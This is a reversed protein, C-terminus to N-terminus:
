RLLIRRTRPVRGKSRASSLCHDLIHTCSCHGGAEKGTSVRSSSLSSFPLLRQLTLCCPGSRGSSDAVMSQGEPDQRQTTQGGSEHNGPLRSRFVLGEVVYFVDLFVRQNNQTSHFLYVMELVFPIHIIFTCRTRRGPM